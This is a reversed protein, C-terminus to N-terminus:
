KFDKPFKDTDLNVINAGESLARIIEDQKFEDMQQYSLDFISQMEVGFVSESLSIDNDQYLRVFQKKCLQKIEDYRYKYFDGEKIRFYLKLMEINHNEKETIIDDDLVANIYSLLLDMLDMKIDCINRIQYKNLISDLNERNLDNNCILKAIDYVYDKFTEKQIIAHFADSFELDNSM